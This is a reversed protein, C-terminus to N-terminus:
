AFRKILSVGTIGILAIACMLCLMQGTLMYMLLLSAGYLGAKPPVHPLTLKLRRRPPNQPVYLGTARIAKILAASDIVFCKPRDLTKALAVAEPEAHCTAVLTLAESGLHNRWQSFIEGASLSSDPYKIIPIIDGKGTLRQFAEVAEAEPLMAIATLAVKAQSPTVHNRWPRFRYLYGLLAMCILSLAGSLPISLGANLFFLYLGAAGLATLTIRDIWRGAM